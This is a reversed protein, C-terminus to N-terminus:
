TNIIFRYVIEKELEERDRKLLPMISYKLYGKIRDDIVEDKFTYLIFELDEDDDEGDENEIYVAPSVEEKSLIKIFKESTDKLFNLINKEGKRFEICNM